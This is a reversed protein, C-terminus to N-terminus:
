PAFGRAARRGARVDRAGRARELLLALGEAALVRAAGDGAWWTMVRAGHQEEADLALKLM